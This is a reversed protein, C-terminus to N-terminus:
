KTWNQEGGLMGEELVTGHAKIASAILDISLAQVIARERPVSKGESHRPYCVKHPIWSLQIM